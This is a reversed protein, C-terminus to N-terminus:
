QRLGDLETGLESFLVEMNINNKIISTIREETNRSKKNILETVATEIQHFSKRKNSLLENSSKNLLFEIYKLQKVTELQKELM